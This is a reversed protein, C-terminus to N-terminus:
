DLYQIQGGNNMIDKIQEETLYEYDDDEFSGGMDYRPGGYRSFSAISGINQNMYPTGQSFMTQGIKNPMHTNISYADMSHTGLEGPQQVGYLSDAAYKYQNEEELNKSDRAKKVSTAATLGPYLAGSGFGQLPNFKQKYDIGFENANPSGGPAMKPYGGYAYGFPNADNGSSINDAWNRLKDRFTTKPVGNNDSVNQAAREERRKARNEQREKKNESMNQKMRDFFGPKDDKTAPAAPTSSAAPAGTNTEPGLGTRLEWEFGKPGLFRFPRMRDIQKYKMRVGAPLNAQFNQFDQPTFQNERVGSRKLADLDYLNPGYTKIKYKGYQNYGTMKLPAGYYSGLLQRFIDDSFNKTQNQNMAQLQDYVAKKKARAEPSMWADPDVKNQPAPMFPRGKAFLNGPDPGIPDGWKAQPLGGYRAMSGMNLSADDIAPQNGMNRLQNMNNYYNSMAKNNAINKAVDKGYGVISQFANGMDGLANKAAEQAQQQYINMDDLGQQGQQTRMADWNMDMGYAAQPMGQMQDMQNVQSLGDVVDGFTDTAIARTNYELIKSKFKDRQEQAADSPTEYNGSSDSPSGGLAKMYGDVVQKVFNKKQGKTLGGFSMVPPMQGYGLPSTSGGYQGGDEMYSGGCNYCPQGGKAYQPTWGHGSFFIDATPQQPYAIGGLQKYSPSWSAGEFMYDDTPLQPYAIQDTIGGGNQYFAAPVAVMPSGGRAMNQQNYWADFVEKSPFRKHFRARGEKTNPEGAAALMDAATM